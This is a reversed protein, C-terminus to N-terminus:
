PDAILFLEDNDNMKRYCFYPVVVIHTEKM